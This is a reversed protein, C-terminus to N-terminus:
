SYNQTHVQETLLTLVNRCMSTFSGWQRKKKKLSLGQKNLSYLTLGSGACIVADLCYLHRDGSRGGVSFM